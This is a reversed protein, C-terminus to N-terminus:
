TFNIKSDLVMTITDISRKKYFFHKTILKSIVSDYVGTLRSIQAVTSGNVFLELVLAIGENEKISFRTKNLNLEMRYHQVSRESLMTAKSLQADDMLHWNKAIFSKKEQPTMDLKM